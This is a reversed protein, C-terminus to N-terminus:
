GDDKEAAIPPIHSFTRLATAVEVGLDTLAYHPGFVPHNFGDPKVLNPLFSMMGVGMQRPEAHFSLLAARQVDSLGRAMQMVEPSHSM